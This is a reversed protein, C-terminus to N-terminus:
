AAPLGREAALQWSSPCLRMGWNHAKFAGRELRVANRCDPCVAYVASPATARGPGPELSRRRIM